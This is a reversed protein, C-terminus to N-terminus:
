VRQSTALRNKYRTRIWKLGPKEVFRNMMAAMALSLIIACLIAAAAPAGNGELSLILASGINNHVLYLPYSIAGLFLLYPHHLFRPQTSTALYLCVFLLAVISAHTIDVAVGAGILCSTAMLCCQWIDIRKKHLLYLSIGLGFLHLQAVPLVSYIRWLGPIKDLLGFYLVFINSVIIASIIHVIYKRAASYFLSGALVYFGLERQLTWYVNDVHPVTALEQVMSLNILADTPSIQYGPLSLISTISYTLLVAMWYVPYLRSFRSVIFEQPTGTKDLTLYIVYGSIMFFLEVGYRGVSFDIPWPATHSYLKAYHTTYHFVVVSLAAIGRLADLEVLRNRRDTNPM